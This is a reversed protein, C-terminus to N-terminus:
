GKPPRDVISTEIVHGAVGCGVVVAVQLLLLDREPFLWYVLAAAGIGVLTGVTAGPVVIIDAISVHSRLLTHRRVHQLCCTWTAARLWMNGCVTLTAIHPNGSTAVRSKCLQKARRDVWAPVRSWDVRRLATTHPRVNSSLRARLCAAKGACGHKNMMPRAPL